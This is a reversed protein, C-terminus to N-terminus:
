VEHSGKELTERRVKEPSKVIEHNEGLVLAHVVSLLRIASANLLQDVALQRFAAAWAAVEVV